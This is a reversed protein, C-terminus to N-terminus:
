RVSNKNPIREAHADKKRSHQVRTIKRMMEALAYESRSHRGEAILFYRAHLFIFIKYKQIMEVLLYETVSHRM